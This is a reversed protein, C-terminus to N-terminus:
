ANCFSYIFIQKSIFLYIGISFNVLNKLHKSFTASSREVVVGSTFCKVQFWYIACLLSTLLFFNYITKYIYNYLTTTNSM